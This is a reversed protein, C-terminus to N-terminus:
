TLGAWSLAALLVATFSTGRCPVMFCLSLLNTKMFRLLTSYVKGEHCKISNSNMDAEWSLSNLKKFVSVIDTRYM